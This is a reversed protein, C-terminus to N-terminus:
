LLMAYRLVMFMKQLATDKKEASHGKGLWFTGDLSKRNQMAGVTLTLIFSIM